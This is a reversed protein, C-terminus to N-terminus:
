RQAAAQRQHRGTHDRDAAEGDNLELVGPDRCRIGNGDDGHHAKSGGTKDDRDAGREKETLQAREAATRSRVLV